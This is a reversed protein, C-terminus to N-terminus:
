FHKKKQHEPVDFTTVQKTDFWVILERVFKRRGRKLWKMENSEVACASAIAEL